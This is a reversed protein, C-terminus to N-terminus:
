DPDWRTVGSEVRPGLTSFMLSGKMKIHIEEVDFDNELMEKM